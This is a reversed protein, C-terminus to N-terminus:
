DRALKPLLIIRISQEPRFYKNIIFRLKERTVPVDKNPSPKNFVLMNKTMDTMLVELDFEKSFQNRKMQLCCDQWSKQHILSDSYYRYVSDIASFLSDINVNIKPNFQILAYNVDKEQKLSANLFGVRTRLTSDVSVFFTEFDMLCGFIGELDLYNTDPLIPLQYAILGTPIALSPAYVTDLNIITDLKILSDMQLTDVKPQVELPFSTQEYSGKPWGSFYLKVKSLISDAPIPSTIVLISRSAAYYQRIFNRIEINTTADVFDPSGKLPLSYPHNPYLFSALSREEEEDDEFSINELNLIKKQNNLKTTTFNISELRLSEAKLVEDIQDSTFIQTYISYDKTFQRKVRGGTLYNVSEEAGQHGYGEMQHNYLLRHALYAIGSQDAPNYKSGAHFALNLISLESTTDQYSVVRLGNDLTDLRLYNSDRGIQGQLSSFGILLAGVITLTRMTLVTRNM